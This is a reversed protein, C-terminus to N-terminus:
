VSEQSTNLPKRMADTVIDAAVSYYLFGHERRLFAPGVACSEGHANTLQGRYDLALKGLISPGTHPCVIFVGAISIAATPVLGAFTFWWLVEMKYLRNVLARFYFLFSFKISFITTWCLLQAVTAYTAVDEVRQIFNPPPLAKGETILEFQYWTGIFSFFLGAGPILALVAIFFFYDDM